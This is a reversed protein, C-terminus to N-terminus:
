SSRGPSGPGRDKQDPTSGSDSLVEDLRAKAQLRLRDQYIEYTHGAKADDSFRYFSFETFHALDLASKLAVENKEEATIPVIRVLAATAAPFDGQLQCIEHLDHLRHNIDNQALGPLSLERLCLRRAIEWRRDM